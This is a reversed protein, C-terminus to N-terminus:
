GVQRELVTVALPEGNRDTIVGRYANIKIQRLARAQGQQQLFSFGREANPVVQLHAIHWILALPLLALFAALATLRWPTLTRSGLSKERSATRSNRKM